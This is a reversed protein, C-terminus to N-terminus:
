RTESGTLDAQRVSAPLNKNSELLYVPGLTIFQVRLEPTDSGSGAATTVTNDGKNVTFSKTMAPLTRLLNWNKDYVSVANGGASKMYENPQIEGKM